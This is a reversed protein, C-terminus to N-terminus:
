QRWYSTRTATNSAAITTGLCFQRLKTTDRLECRSWGSVDPRGPKTVVIIAYSCQSPAKGAKLLHYRIDEPDFWFGLDGDGDVVLDFDWRKLLANTKPDFVELIVKELHGSTLWAKIGNEYNGRQQVFSHMSLGSDRIINGLSLLMKDTIYTVVHVRSYTTSATATNTSM